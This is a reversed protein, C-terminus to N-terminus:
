FSTKCTECVYTNEDVTIKGLKRTVDKIFTNYTEKTPNGGEGKIFKYYEGDWDQKGWCNPCVGKPALVSSDSNKKKNFYNKVNELLNM